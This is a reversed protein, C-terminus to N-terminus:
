RREAAFLSDTVQQAPQSQRLKYLSSLHLLISLPVLFVPIMALPFAGILENPNAFAFMQLRSPSSLFGTSVAVILDTIGLLNWARLRAAANPLRHAYAGGVLPASLGVLFDGVGAPWAFVGPLHGTAYLVLFIVGEARYVQLSVIWSQPIAEVVHRLTKSTRFLAIGAIIPILLGYQIAPTGSFATQYLGFFSPLLAAFFWANLLIAVMRFARKRDRDPWGALKLAKHLGFLIAAVTALTGTLVYPILYTPM